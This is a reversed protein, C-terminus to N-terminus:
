LTLLDNCLEELLGNHQRPAHEEFREIEGPRELTLDIIDGANVTETRGNKYHVTFLGCRNKILAEIREIRKLLEKDM